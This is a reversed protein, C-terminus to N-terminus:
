LYYYSKVNYPITKYILIHLAITYLWQKVMDLVYGSNSWTWCMVVTQGHGACLWQKVMDLVYGSNSWTWCMVVTQGHGACM